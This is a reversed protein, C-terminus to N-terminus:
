PLQEPRPSGEGERGMEEVYGVGPRDLVPEYLPATFDELFSRMGLAVQRDLLVNFWSGKTTIHIV